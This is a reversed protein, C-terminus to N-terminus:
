KWTWTSRRRTSASGSSPPSTPCSLASITSPSRPSAPCSATSSTTCADVATDDDAGGSLHYATGFALAAQATIQEYAARRPGTTDHTVLLAHVAVEPLQHASEATVGDSTSM